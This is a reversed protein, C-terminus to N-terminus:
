DQQAKGILNYDRWFTGTRENRQAMWIRWEQHRKPDNRKDRISRLAIIALNGLIERADEDDIQVFASSLLQFAARADMDIKLENKAM